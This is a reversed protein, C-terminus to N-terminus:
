GKNHIVHVDEEKKIEADWMARFRLAEQKLMERERERQIRRQELQKDTYMKCENDKRLREIADQEMRAALADSEKMAVEHWMRDFEKEALKMAEKEKIQYLQIEEAEKARLKYICPLVHVCRSLPTDKYREEHEKKRKAILYALRDKKDQWLAEAGAQAQEVFKRINAEEEVAFLDVLRKRKEKLDEQYSQMCLDVRRAVNNILSRRDCRIFFDSCQKDKLEKLKNEAGKRQEEELARLKKVFKVYRFTSNLVRSTYYCDPVGRPGPGDKPIKQRPPQPPQPFM